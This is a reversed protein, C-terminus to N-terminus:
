LTDITKEECMSLINSLFYSCLLACSGMGFIILPTMVNIIIYLMIFYICAMLITCPLFRMGLILSNKIMAKTNNSFRSLLPFIYLLMIIYAVCAVIFIATIITWFISSFRLHYLVYGDAILLIGLGLLLSWIFVGQKFNEKFSHFFASTIHGEENKAIKLSVYFLATTAPGITIIPICCIFWLINLYASYVIKTIFQMVINDPTLLNRM